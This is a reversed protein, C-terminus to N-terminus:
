FIFGVQFEAADETDTQSNTQFEAKIFANTIPTFNLGAIKISDAFKQITDMGAYPIVKGAVPLIVGKSYGIFIFAQLDENEEIGDDVISFQTSLDLHNLLDYQLDLEYHLRERDHEFNEWVISSGLQLDGLQCSIRGGADMEESFDHAWFIRGSFQGYKYFMKLMFSSTLDSHQM